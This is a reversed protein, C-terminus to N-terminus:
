GREDGDDRGSSRGREPSAKVEQEWVYGKELQLVELKQMAEADSAAEWLVNAIADHANENANRLLREVPTLDHVSGEGMLPDFSDTRTMILPHQLSREQYVSEPFARYRHFFSHHWPAFYWAKRRGIDDDGFHEKMLSYLRRYMSVREESSPNLEKDERYEKFIWPKILAGRGVLVALCGSEKMRRSAEFQTLIDGNGIVPACESSNSVRSIAQWDAPKRYRQEMTRGHVIVSAAGAASLLKVVREVNIKKESEGLRVKVTLPLESDKAIGHVLKALSRPKRLLVAGLGRRTAEYIPCGCNLDIWRAGNERALRAAELGESITKTAIQFGYCHESEGKLLRAREVRDGKLLPKAFAMESMTVKCGLEVCWKRFPAHNGRTLPALILEGRLEDILTKNRIHVSESLSFSAMLEQDGELVSAMDNNETGVELDSVLTESVSLHSTIHIHRFQSRSPTPGSRRHPTVWAENRGCGLAQRRYGSLM